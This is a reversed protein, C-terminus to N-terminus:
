LCVQPATPWRLVVSGPPRSSAPCRELGKAPRVMVLLGKAGRRFNTRVFKGAKFTGEVFEGSIVTGRRFSM